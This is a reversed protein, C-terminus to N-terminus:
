PRKGGTIWDDLLHLEDAALRKGPPMSGTRAAGYARRASNSAGAYTHLRLGSEALGAGHCKTCRDDLLAKVSGAYTPWGGAPAVPFAPVPVAAPEKLFTQLVKGDAKGLWPLDHDGGAAVAALIAKSKAGVVSAAAGGTGDTGHCSACHALYTERGAFAVGTRGKSVLGGRSTNDGPREDPAGALTATACLAEIPGDVWVQQALTVSKGPLLDVTGSWLEAGTHDENAFVRVLVGTQPATGRNSVKIKAVPGATAIEGIKMKLSVDNAAKTAARAGGAVALAALAAAALGLHTRM